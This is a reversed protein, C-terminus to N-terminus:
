SNRTPLEITFTMGRDANRHASIKGGHNEVLQCSIALGLGTGQAKTTFFPDFIHDLNEHDIGVGTDAIEIIARNRKEDVRTRIDLRGGEPMAQVGNLIMNLLVQRMQDSDLSVSPLRLDFHKFIELRAPVEQQEFLVLTSEILDNLSTPEVMPKPPRAFKLFETIIANLRTVEEKIIRVFEHKPNDPSVENELIEISGKISGLPNRIEHAIGASLQGLAALRDSKRLQDFTKQLQDYAQALEHSVKELRERQRRDRLSLLGIVVAVAHYMIIETYKNFAYVPFRTWDKEIHYLYLVSVAAAALVGKVPGYWYATLLIPIYYLRQYLEHLYSHETGTRYHLFTTLLVLLFIVTSKVADRRLQSM